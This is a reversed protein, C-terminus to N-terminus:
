CKSAILSVVICTACLGSIGLAAGLAINKARSPPPPALAYAPVGGFGPQPTPPAFPAVAGAALTDHPMPMPTPPAFPSPASAIARTQPVPTSGGPPPVSAIPQPWSVPVPASTSALPELWAILEEATRPRVALDRSLARAFFSDVMPSLSPRITTPPPPATTLVRSIAEVPTAGPFPLRGTIMEYFVVAGSWLDTRADVETPNSIQEPSMYEPTGLLMGAQTQATGSPASLSKAIGFDLLRVFARGGRNEILVNQPKLDRHVVGAAHAVSLADLLSRMLPVAQEVKMPGNKRLIESLPEGKLYAMVICPFVRGNGDDVQLWTYVPVISPHELSALLRAERQFRDTLMPDARLDTHLVKIAVTRHLELDTAKWVAGMGGSGLLSELRFHNGVIVGPALQM